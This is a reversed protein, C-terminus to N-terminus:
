YNNKLDFINTNSKKEEAERQERSQRRKELRQNLKDIYVKNEHLYERPIEKNDYMTHLWNSLKATMDKSKKFDEPLIPKGYTIILRRRKFLSKFTRPFKMHRSWIEYGGDIFVPIIPVKAQRAIFSTGDKIIGLKGDASRTGEPHIMLINGEKLQNVCIKLSTRPNGKRDIPIGRGTRMIIKGLWGSSEELEKAALATFKMFHKRPLGMGVLLGDIYTEHNAAMIFPAESPLNEQGRTEFKILTRVLFSGLYYGIHGIWNREIPKVDEANYTTNTSNESM